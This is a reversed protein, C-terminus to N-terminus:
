DFLYRSPFVARSIIADWSPVTMQRDNEWKRFGVRRKYPRIEDGLRLMFRRGVRVYTDGCRCHYVYVGRRIRGFLLWPHWGFHSRQDCNGRTCRPFSTFALMFASLACWSTVAGVFVGLFFGLLGASLGSRRNITAALLGGLSCWVVVLWLRFLSRAGGALVALCFSRLDWSGM